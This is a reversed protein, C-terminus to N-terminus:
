GGAKGKARAAAIAEKIAEYGVAGPMVKEGVVFVPTGSAELAQALRMNSAIEADHSKDTIAAEATARSMGVKQAAAILKNREVGGAAYLARHFAAYDGGSKAFALSLRAADASGEAIIPLERYVVRLGKDEALLRDIVPLSARCYGCAYDFFEVLVVDPKAAGEWASGYPAELATRNEQVVAAMRKEQLKQVAQPIIEPNALIYDRVIAEIKARESADVPGVGAAVSTAAVAAGGLLGAGALAALGFRRDQWRPRPGTRRLMAEGMMRGARLLTGLKSM